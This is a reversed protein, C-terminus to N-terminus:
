RLFRWWLYFSCLVMSQLTIPIGYKCFRVFSIPHKSRESIGAVVVNASAGVLTFNGGLCAGLSLAWWLPLIDPAHAIQYFDANAADPHLSVAMGHIVANMTAVFPINDIVGSAIASFWLVGMTLAFRQPDTLGGSVEGGCAMHIIGQGIMKVVGVKVLASVMIFLGAFFFITSWEVERLTGEPEERHLLLLAAAGALAITAPELHLAGHFGFGVLVLAIVALCRTLLRPDTIARTEDFEMIRARREASVRLRRGMVAWVTGLFVVMCVVIIPGDVKLFDTFTLRASSGIMINPPDGILTATGGINSSLVVLILAPVPDLGLSEFVLLTVPAILLVTTVNDLAASVVATIACLLLIILVPSGKAWKAAKIAIWQFVGTHRTINVIVMMGVLLFITNWDIGEVEGEGHLAAKQDILHFLLVVAAGALAVKTKHIKDSAILAYALLFIASTSAQEVSLGRQRMLVYAVAAVIPTAVAWGVPLRLKRLVVALGLALAAALLSGGAITM